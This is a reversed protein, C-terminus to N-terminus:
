HLFVQYHKSIQTQWIVPDSLIFQDAPFETKGCERVEALTEYIFCYEEQLWVIREVISIICVNMVSTKARLFHPVTISSLLSWM